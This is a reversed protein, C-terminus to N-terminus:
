KVWGVAAQSLWRDRESFKFFPFFAKGERQWEFEIRIYDSKTMEM